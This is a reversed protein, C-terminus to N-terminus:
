GVVPPKTATTTKTMTTPKMKGASTYGGTVAVSLMAALTSLVGHFGQESELILAGLRKATAGSAQEDGTERGWACIAECAIQSAEGLTLKAELADRALQLLGKGTAVEIANIAEYSPRLVMEMGGLTLAIEGRDEVAPRTKNSM